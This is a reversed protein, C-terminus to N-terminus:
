KEAEAADGEASKSDAMEESEEQSCVTFQFFTLPYAHKCEYDVFLVRRRRSMTMKKRLHVRARSHSIGLAIVNGTKLARSTGPANANANADARAHARVSGAGEVAAAAAVVVTGPFTVFLPSPPSSITCQRRFRDNACCLM